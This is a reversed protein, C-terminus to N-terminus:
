KTSLRISTPTTVTSRSFSFPDSWESWDGFANGASLRVTHGGMSIHQLDYRFSGDEEAAWEIQQGDLELVYNIVGAQPDCILWPAAWAVPVILMICVGLLFEKWPTM